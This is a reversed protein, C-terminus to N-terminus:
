LKNEARVDGVQYPEYDRGVPGIGAKDLWYTYGGATGVAGAVQIGERVVEHGGHIRWDLKDLIDFRQLRIGQGVVAFLREVAIAIGAQASALEGAEQDDWEERM